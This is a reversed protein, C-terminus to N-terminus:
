LGCSLSGLRMQEGSGLLGQAAAPYDEAIGAVHRNKVTVLNLEPWPLHSGNAEASVRRGFKVQAHLLVDHNRAGKRGDRGRKRRSSVVGNLGGHHSRRLAIHVDDTRHPYIRRARNIEEM